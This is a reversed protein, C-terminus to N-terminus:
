QSLEVLTIGNPGVLPSSQKRGPFRQSVLYQQDPNSLTIFLRTGAPLNTYQEDGPPITGDFGIAHRRPFVLKDRSGALVVSGAPIQEVLWRSQAQAEAVRPWTHLIGITSDNLVLWTSVVLMAGGLVWSLRWTVQSKVQLKGLAYGCGLAALPVLPLWYRLYSLDLVPERIAPFEVFKYNGYLIVLLLGGVLSGGLVARHTPDRWKQLGLWFIGVAGPILIYGLPGVAYVKLREWAVGPKTGFPFFVNKVQQFTNLEQVIPAPSFAGNARYGVAALEGYTQKQFVFLALMPVLAVAGAILTMRWPIHKWSLLAFVILGPVVWSVESPRIALMTGWVLGTLMASGWWRTRWTQQGCWLGLILLSTFVGNQWMGRGAYFWFTPFSALIVTSWWAVASGFSRKLLSWWALMATSALAPGFMLMGFTGLVKGIFGLLHPFFVFSGPVLATGNNLVSRSAGPLVTPIKTQSTAKDQQAFSYNATEDPSSFVPWQLTQWAPISFVGFLGLWIAVIGLIRKVSPSLQM